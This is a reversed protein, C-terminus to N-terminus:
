RMRAGFPPWAHAGGFRKRGQRERLRLEAQHRIGAFTPLAPKRGCWDGHDIVALTLLPRRDQRGKAPMARRARHRKRRRAVFSSRCDFGIHALHKARSDEGGIDPQVGTLVGLHQGLSLRQRRRGPARLPGPVQEIPRRAAVVRRQQCRKPRSVLDDHGPVAM